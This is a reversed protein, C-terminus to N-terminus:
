MSCIIGTRHNVEYFHMQHKECSYWIVDKDNADVTVSVRYDCAPCWGQRLVLIKLMDQEDQDQEVFKHTRETHDSRKFGCQKCLDTMKGEVRPPPPPLPNKLRHEIFAKLKM